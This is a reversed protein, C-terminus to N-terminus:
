REVTTDTRRRRSALLLASGVVVLAIVIIVGVSINAGTFAVGTGPDTHHTSPAPSKSPPYAALAQSATLAISTAVGALVLAFRKV